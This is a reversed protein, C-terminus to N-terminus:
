KAVLPADPLATDVENACPAGSLVAEINEFTTNAINELAEYTLFAQHGTVIVNQMCLLRCIHDSVDASRAYHFFAASEAEVVDIGLHGLQGTKLAEIAANTDILGGRSTNILM